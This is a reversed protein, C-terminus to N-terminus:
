THNNPANIRIITLTKEVNSKNKVTNSDSFM